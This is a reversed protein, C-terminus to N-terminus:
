VYRFSSWSQGLHAEDTAIRREKTFKTFPYQLEGGINSLRETTVYVVDSEGQYVRDVALLDKQASRLFTTHIGKASLSLPQDAMLSITPTVVAHISRLVRGATM